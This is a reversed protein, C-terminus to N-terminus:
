HKAQYIIAKYVKDELNRDNDISVWDGSKDKVQRFVRVVLKGKDSANVCIKQRINLDGVPMWDTVFLGTTTDSSILPYQSMEGAAAKIISKRPASSKSSLSIKGIVVDKGGFKGIAERKRKIVRNERHTQYNLLKMPQTVAGAQAAILM